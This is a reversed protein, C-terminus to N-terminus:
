NMLERHGMGKPHIPSEDDDCHFPQIPDREITQMIFPAVITGWLGSDPMGEDLSKNEIRLIYEIKVEPLETNRGDLRPRWEESKMRGDGLAYLLLPLATM